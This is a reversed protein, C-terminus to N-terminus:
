TQQLSICHPTEQRHNTHNAPLQAATHPVVRLAHDPPSPFPQNSLYTPNALRQISQVLYGHAQIPTHIPVRVSYETPFGVNTNLEEKRSMGIRRVKDLKFVSMSSISCREQNAVNASDEQSRGSLAM